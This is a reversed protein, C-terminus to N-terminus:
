DANTISLVENENHGIISAIFSFSSGYSGYIKECEALCLMDIFGAIIGEKSSRNLKGPNIEQMLSPYNNALYNRVEESDSAVFFVTNADQALEKNMAEEFLPLPSYKISEKQDTRRIHVGILRKGRKKGVIEDVRNKLDKHLVFKKMQASLCSTEAIRNYLSCYVGNNILWESVGQEGLSDYMAVLDESTKFSRRKKMTFIVTRGVINRISIDKRIPLNKIHRIKCECDIIDFLDSSKIFCDDTIQWLFVPIWKEQGSYYLISLIAQIRNGLGGELLIYKRRM